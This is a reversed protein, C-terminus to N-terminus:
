RFRLGLISEVTASQDLVALVITQVKSWGLDLYLRGIGILAMKSCHAIKPHGLKSQFVKVAIQKLQHPSFNLSCYMNSQGFLGFVQEFLLQSSVTRICISHLLSASSRFELAKQRESVIVKLAAAFCLRRELVSYSYQFTFLNIFNENVYELTQFLRLALFLRLAKLM